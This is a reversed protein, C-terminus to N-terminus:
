LFKFFPAYSRNLSDEWVFLCFRCVSPGRAHCRGRYSLRGPFWPVFLWRCLLIFLYRLDMVRANLVGSSRRLIIKVATIKRTKLIKAWIGTGPTFRTFNLARKEWLSNRPSNSIKEPPVKALKETM